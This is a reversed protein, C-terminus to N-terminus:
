SAAGDQPVKLALIPKTAHGWRSIDLPAADQDSQTAALAAMLQEDIELDGITHHVLKEVLDGNIHDAEDEDSRYISLMKEWAAPAHENIIHGVICVPGDGEEDFYQCDAQHDPGYKPDALLREVTSIAQEATITETM